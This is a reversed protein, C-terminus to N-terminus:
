QATYKKELFPRGLAPFMAYTLVDEESRALDAIEAAFRDYAPPIQDAPRCTIPQQGDTLILRQLEESVRGPAKGYEGRVYAKTENPLMKYRQGAIVNMAAQAGCMQSFPTGLPPYGLDARVRVVEELVEELRETANMQSLQFELNSRMGGPIQHRVVNIDVGVLKTAYEQYKKRMDKLYRNIEALKTYDLGTDRPTKQLVAIISEAAPHSTSLAFASVDVDLVDAGSRAVEWYTIETMGGTCHSHYHVPVTVAAKVAAVTNGATIPDIMGGMDELHVATAGIAVYEQATRIFSPIDHVPSSTFQINGEVRKGARLAAKAAAACNRIDNLGDFILFIDIGAKAAATVFRDVVDDAYPTYGLLNQGRLLMRLPTKKVYKKFTRIREWPDENLYRLCTDFTAGGWMEICEYGFDDMQPLVPVMDETRMRTAILSQQGDRFDVSALKVPGYRAAEAWLDNQNM